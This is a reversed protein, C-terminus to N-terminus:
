REAAEESIQGRPVDGLRLGCQDFELLGALDGALNEVGAAPEAVVGEVQGFATM